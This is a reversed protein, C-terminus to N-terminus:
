QNNFIRISRLLQNLPTKKSCSTLIRTPSVTSNLAVIDAINRYEDEAWHVPPQMVQNVTLIKIRADTYPTILNRLYQSPFQSLSDYHEDM